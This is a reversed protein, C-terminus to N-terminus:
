MTGFTYQIILVVSISTTISMTQLTPLDRWVGLLIIRYSGKHCQVCWEAFDHLTKIDTRQNRMMWMIPVNTLAYWRRLTTKCRTSEVSMVSVGGKPTQKFFRCCPRMVIRNDTRKNLICWWRDQSNMAQMYYRAFSTAITRSTTGSIYRWVNSIQNM